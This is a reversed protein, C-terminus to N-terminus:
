PSGRVPKVSNSLWSLYSANGGRVPLAVIEPVTYPHLIKVRRMLAPLRARTTKALLLHEVSKELKGQWRYLSRVGVINVCAALREAVLSAALRRSVRANPATMLVVVVATRTM